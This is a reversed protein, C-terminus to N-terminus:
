LLFNKPPLFKASKKVESSGRLYVDQLELMTEKLQQPVSMHLGEMTAIVERLNDISKRVSEREKVRESIDESYRPGLTFVDVFFQCKESHSQKSDIVEQPIELIDAILYRLEQSQTSYQDQIPLQCFENLKSRVVIHKWIDTPMSVDGSKLVIQKQALRAKRELLGRKFANKLDFDRINSMNINSIEVQPNMTLKFIENPDITTSSGNELLNQLLTNNNLHENPSLIGMKVLRLHTVPSVNIFLLMYKGINEIQDQMWERLEGIYNRSLKFNYNLSNSDDDFDLMHYFLRPPLSESRIVNDQRLLTFFSFFNILFFSTYPNRYENELKFQLITLLSKLANWAKQNISTKVLSLFEEPEVEFYEIYNLVDKVDVYNFYFVLDEFGIDVFSDIECKLAEYAWWFHNNERLRNVLKILNTDGSEMALLLAKELNVTELRDKMGCLKDFKIARLLDHEPTDGGLRSVKEHKDWYGYPSEKDDSVNMLWVQKAYEEPGLEVDRDDNESFEVEEESLEEESEPRQQTLKHRKKPYDELVLQEWSLNSDESNEVNSEDSEFVGQTLKIEPRQRKKM